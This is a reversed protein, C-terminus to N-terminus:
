DTLYKVSAYTGILKSIPDLVSMVDNSAVKFTKWKNPQVYIIDNPKIVMNSLSMSNFSTMDVKRMTMQNQANHSIVIINNRVASNTFDGAFAVAEIITLKEKDLKVVGPKKVEGLVYIRKNIVELNLTPDTLYMKYKRELLKAAQTQTLGSLKVRHILPLSIYGRSDVLIGKETMSTPALEPYKYVNIALRDHPLIKYEIKQHPVAKEVAPEEQTQFLQYDSKSACGSLLFLVGTWLM